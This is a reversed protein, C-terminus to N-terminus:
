FSRKTIYLHTCAHSKTKITAPSNRSLTNIFYKIHRTMKLAHLLLVLVRETYNSAHGIHM